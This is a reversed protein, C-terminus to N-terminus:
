PTREQEYFGVWEAQVRSTLKKREGLTVTVIWGGIHAAISERAMFPTQSQFTGVCLAAVNRYAPIYFSKHFHGIAILDPKQGGSIAEIIRQPKYSLAYQNIGGGPHILQIMFRLGSKTKLIVSGIDAGIYKWDPRIQQLEDGVTMGILKKYSADHNGTIFLTQLSDIKPISEAFM